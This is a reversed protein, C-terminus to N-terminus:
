LMEMPKLNNLFLRVAANFAAPNELNPLHGAHPIVELVSGRIAAHMAQAEQLPIIQDQAGPLLLTPIHIEALTPTSDPREKLAVLDGLLAELSIASMIQRAQEVLEPRTQYTVPALLKPLMADVIANVGQQRALEASQDRALRAQPTDAAARTATLILGALRAAYKRYFAFAIYGGMSLGCLVIKQHIGLADLFAALDDAFLDVSYPGPVAQSEGHGRLDPALVHAIDALGQLQPEWMRRNLPYGHVFLLPLGKGAESYAMSFGRQHLNLITM